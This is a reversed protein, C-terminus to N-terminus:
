NHEQLVTSLYKGVIGCIFVFCQKCTLKSCCGQAVAAGPQALVAQGTFVRSSVQEQCIDFQNMM